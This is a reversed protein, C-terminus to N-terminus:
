RKSVLRKHGVSIELISFRTQEQDSLYEQSNHGIYKRRLLSCCLGEEGRELKDIWKVLLCINMARVDMFGLGGFEKPRSLAEWKIMHYKRRKGTGQWFFDQDLPTWFNFIEKM